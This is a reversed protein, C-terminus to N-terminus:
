FASGRLAARQAATVRLRTISPQSRHLRPDSLLLSGRPARQATLALEAEVLDTSLSRWRWSVVERLLCRGVLEEGPEAVARELCDGDLRYRVQVDGTGDRTRLLLQDGSWGLGPSLIERSNHLDRRLLRLAYEPLVNRQEAAVHVLMRQSELLLQTALLLGLLFLVSAITLELVTFGAESSRDRSCAAPISM